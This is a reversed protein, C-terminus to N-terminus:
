FLLIIEQKGAFFTGLYNITSGEVIDLESLTYKDELIMGNFILEINDSKIENTKKVKEKLEAVEATESIEIKSYNGKSDIIFIKM